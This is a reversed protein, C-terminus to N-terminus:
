EVNSNSIMWALSILIDVYLFCSNIFYVNVDKQKVMESLLNRQYATVGGGSHDDIIDWNYYLIKM